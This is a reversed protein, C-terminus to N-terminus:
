TEIDLCNLVFVYAECHPINTSLVLDTWQPSMVELISLYNSLTVYALQVRGVAQLEM